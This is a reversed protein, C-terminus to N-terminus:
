PSQLLSQLEENPKKTKKITQFLKAVMYGAVYTLPGHEAPNIGGGGSLQSVSDQSGVTQTTQSKNKHYFGIMYDPLHITVLNAAKSDQCDLLKCSELILGFLSEFLQDQNSKQWFKEIM